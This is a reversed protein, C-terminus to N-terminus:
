ATVHPGGGSDADVTQDRFARIAIVGASNRDARFRHAAVSLTLPPTPEPTGFESLIGQFQQVIAPDIVASRKSRVVPVVASCGVFEALGDASFVPSRETAARAILMERTCWAMAQNFKSAHTAKEYHRVLFWGADSCMRIVPTYDDRFQFARQIRAFVPESEFLVKAESVMHFAFLSGSRAARLTHDLPYAMTTTRAIKVLEPADNATIASLDVDSRADFDGRARSGYLLLCM